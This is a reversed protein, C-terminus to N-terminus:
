LYRLIMAFKLMGLYHIALKEYRTAVRRFEKLWGICREVINRDRYAEKDFGERRLEDDRTPIVDGIDRDELWDRIRPASYAKDGAVNEPQSRPRGPKGAISVQELLTEFFKSEHAQGGSM